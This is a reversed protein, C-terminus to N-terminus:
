TGDGLVSSDFLSVDFLELQNDLKPKAKAGSCSSGGELTFWQSLRAM